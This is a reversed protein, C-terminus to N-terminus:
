SANEKIWKKLDDVRNTWGKLFKKLSPKHNALGEYFNIRAQNFKDVNNGSISLLKKARGLGANVAVDFFAFSLPSTMKDCGDKQWEYWYVDIVADLTPHSYDFHPHSTEDIGGYTRGGSDGKVDEIVMFNLDGYHGKKYVAEHPLIFEMLFKKFQENM